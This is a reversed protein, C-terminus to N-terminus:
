NWYKDEPDWSADIRILTENDFEFDTWGCEKLYENYMNLYYSYNQDPAIAIMKILDFATKEILHYPLKKM